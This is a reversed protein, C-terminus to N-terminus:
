HRGPKDATVHIFVQSRHQHHLESRAKQTHTHTHTLILGDSVEFELTLGSCAGRGRFGARDECYDSYHLLKNNNNTQAKNSGFPQLIFPM